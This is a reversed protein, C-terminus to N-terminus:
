KIPINNKLKTHVSYNFVQFFPFILEDLGDLYRLYHKFPSNKLGASLQFIEDEMYTFLEMRTPVRGGLQEKIRFYEGRVREEKKVGKKAM